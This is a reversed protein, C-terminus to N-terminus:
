VATIGSCTLITVLGRTELVVLGLPMLFKFLSIVKMNDPKEYCVIEVNNPNKKTRAISSGDTFANPYPAPHASNRGASNLGRALMWCWCDPVASM